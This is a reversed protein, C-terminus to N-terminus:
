VVILCGPLHRVAGFIKSAMSSSFFNNEVCIVKLKNPRSIFSGLHEGAADALDCVVVGFETVNDPLSELLEIM